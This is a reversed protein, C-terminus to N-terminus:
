LTKLFEILKDKDSDGLYTGYEHGYNHNGEKTVDYLFFNGCNEAGEGAAMAHVFGVKKEDFEDNGTCFKKPRADVKKLLDRM